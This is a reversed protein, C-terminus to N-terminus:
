CLSHLLEWNRHSCQRPSQGSELAKWNIQVDVNTNITSRKAVKFGDIVL